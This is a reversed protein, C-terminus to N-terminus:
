GKCKSDPLVQWAIVPSGSGHEILDVIMDSEGYYDFRNFLDSGLYKLKVLESRCIPCVRKRFEYTVKLKNSNCAGFWSAPHFRKVGLRYGAHNLQYWATGFVTKRRELVKVIYGDAKRKRGKADVYFGSPKGTSLDLEGVGLKRAMNEWGDCGACVFQNGVRQVYKGGDTRVIYPSMKPCNWCKGYSYSLFGLIHFHPSFYWGRMNRIGGKVVDYKRYRKPHFIIVGGIVGRSFAVKLVKAKLKEYPLGYDFSPVSIIIHLPEGLPKFKFGYEDIFGQSAKTIRQYIRSAERVAWGKSYCVPCSPKDCHSFVKHVHVKGKFNGGQLTVINHKYTKLCGEYRLFRGCNKNTPASGHGVLPFVSDDEDYCPVITEPEVQDGLSLLYASYQADFDTAHQKDAFVMRTEFVRTLGSEGVPVLNSCSVGDRSLWNPCSVGACKPYGWGCESM